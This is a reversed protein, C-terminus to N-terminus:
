LAEVIEIDPNEFRYGAKVRVFYYTGPTLFLTVKGHNNTIGTAVLNNYTLTPSNYVYVFVEPIVTEGDPRYVTYEFPVPGTGPVLRTFEPSGLIASSVINAMEALTSSDLEVGPLSDTIASAVNSLVKNSLEAGLVINVVFATGTAHENGPTLLQQTGEWYADWTPKGGSADFTIIWEGTDRQGYYWTEAENVYRIKFLGKPDTRTYTGTVDPSLDGEIQVQHIYGIANLKTNLQDFDSSLESRIADVTPPATYSDAALRSTISDDLNDLKAARETTYASRHQTLSLDVANLTTQDAIDGAPLKGAITDIETDRTGATLTRTTASWIGTIIDLVLSGFSSLTRTTASWVATAISSRESTTLAYGTKDLNTGVTVNSVDAKCEDVNDVTVKGTTETIALDGFHAPAASAALRSTITADLNDLKMAREISYNKRHSVLDNGIATLLSQDAIGYLPLKGVITNISALETQYDQVKKAVPYITISSPVVGTGACCIGIVDANTEAQTLDIRWQGNGIHTASNVAAQTGNDKTIYFDVGTTKPSGDSSDVVSAFIYQGATNKYM